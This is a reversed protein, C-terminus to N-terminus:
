KNCELWSDEMFIATSSPMDSIAEAFIAKAFSFFIPSYLRQHHISIYIQNIIKSM